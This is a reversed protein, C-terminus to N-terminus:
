IEEIPIIVLILEYNSFVLFIEPGRAKYGDCQPTKHGESVGSPSLQPRTLFKARVVCTV